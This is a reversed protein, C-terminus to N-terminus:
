CTFVNGKVNLPQLTADNYHLTTYVAMILSFSQMIWLDLEKLLFFVMEDFKDTKKVKSVLDEAGFTQFIIFAM